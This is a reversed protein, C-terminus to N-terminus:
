AANELQKQSLIGYIRLLFILNLFCRILNNKSAYQTNNGHMIPNRYVNKASKSNKKQMSTVKDGNAFIKEIVTVFANYYVSHTVMKVYENSINKPLSHNSPKVFTCGKQKKCSGTVPCHPEPTKKKLIDKILTEEKPPVLSSLGEYLGSIQTLLTPIIVTIADDQPAKELVSFCSNIINKRTEFYACDKYKSLQEKIKSFNNNSYYEIITYEIEEENKTEKEQLIDLLENDLVIWYNEALLSNLARWEEARKIANEISAFNDEFYSIIKPQISDYITNQITSWKETYPQMANSLPNEYPLYIGFSYNDFYPIHPITKTALEMTNYLSSPLTPISIEHYLSMSRQLENMTNAYNEFTGFSKTISNIMNNQIEIAELMKNTPSIKNEKM